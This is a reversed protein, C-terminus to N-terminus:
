KHLLISNQSFLLLQKISADRKMSNAMNSIVMVNGPIYGLLNNIRDLSPSDDRNGEYKIPINLYPCIDPIIIDKESITFLINERKARNKIALFMKHAIKNKDVLNIELLKRKNSRCSSCISIVGFKSNKTSKNFNLLSKFNNCCTCKLYVIEDIIKHEQRPTGKEHYGFKERQHIMASSRECQKCEPLTYLVVSAKNIRKRTRFEVIPKSVNCKTCVKM